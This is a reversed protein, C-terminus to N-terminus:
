DIGPRDHFDANYNGAKLIWPITIVFWDQDKHLIVQLVDTFGSVVDQVNQVDKHLIGKMWVVWHDNAGEIQEITFTIPNKSYNNIM